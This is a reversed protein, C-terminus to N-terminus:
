QLTHTHTHACAHTHVHTHTHLVSRCHRVKSFSFVPLIPQVWGPVQPYDRVNVVMEVDPLRDIVQLIFHEVGSCRFALCRVIILDVFFLQTSCIVQKRLGMAGLGYVVRRWGVSNQAIKETGQWSIGQRKLVVETDWRSTNKPRGEEM